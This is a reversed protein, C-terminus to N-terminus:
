YFWGQTVEYNIILEEGSKEHFLILIICMCCRVVQQKLAPM